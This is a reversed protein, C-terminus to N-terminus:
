GAATLEATADLDITQLDHLRYLKAHLRRALPEDAEVTICVTLTGGADRMECHQLSLLQQDFMQAIRMLARPQSAASIRYTWLM